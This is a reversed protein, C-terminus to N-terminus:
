CEASTASARREILGSVVLSKSLDAVEEDLAQVELVDVSVTNTM